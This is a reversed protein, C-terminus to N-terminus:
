PSRRATFWHRSPVRFWGGFTIFWFANFVSEIPSPLTALRGKAPSAVFENDVMEAGKSYAEIVVQAQDDHLQAQRVAAGFYVIFGALVTGLIFLM